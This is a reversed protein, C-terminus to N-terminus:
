GSRWWPLGRIKKFEKKETQESQTIEVIRNEQDSIHEETDDLRNNIEELTNKM